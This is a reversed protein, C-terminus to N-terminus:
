IQLAKKWIENSKQFIEDAYNGLKKEAKIFKKYASEDSGHIDSGIGVVIGKEIWSFLSKNRFFKSLSDANLQILAGKQILLEIIKPNYRDAHALIVRIGQQIIKEVASLHVDSFGTFPLELLLYDTGYICLEKLNELKDLNDCLLVEAGLKIEVSPLNDKDLLQKYAEERRLLFSSLTHQHPYFHSTSIIKKVGYKQALELQKRSAECSSSGHDLKPLIHTHFDIREYQM